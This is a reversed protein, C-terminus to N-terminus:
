CFVMCAAATVIYYVVLTLEWHDQTSLAGGRGLDYNYLMMLARAKLAACTEKFKRFVLLRNGMTCTSIYIFIPFCSGSVRKFVRQYIILDDIANCWIIKFIYETKNM